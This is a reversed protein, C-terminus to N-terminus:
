EDDLISQFLEGQSTNRSKGRVWDRAIEELSRGTIVSNPAEELISPQDSIRAFQDTDKILLWLPSRGNGMAGEIRVLTWDGKIKEGDMTLKLCGGRLGAEVDACGPQLKWLGRDWVMTIGAGRRGEQIIGEFTAHEMAHDGVQIAKRKHETYYSPGEPIAWSVLVRNWELRFDYHLRTAQHKKIVFRLQAAATRNQITIEEASRQQGVSGGASELVGSRDDISPYLELQTADVHGNKSNRRKTAM